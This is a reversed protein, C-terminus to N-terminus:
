GTEMDHIRQFVIYREYRFSLVCLPTLYFGSSKRHERLARDCSPFALCSIWDLARASALPEDRSISQGAIPPDSPHFIDALPHTPSVSALM